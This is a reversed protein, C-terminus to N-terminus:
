INGIDIKIEDNGVLKRLSNVKKLIVKTLNNITKLYYLITEEDTVHILKHINSHVLVLNKYSDDGGLSVPKKHHCEFEGIKLYEKTVACQGRQGYYLSIRNDNYEVSRTTIPNSIMYRIIRYDLGMANSHIIKRGTHTYDCIERRLNMPSSHKMAYIPFLELDGIFYTKGSYNGYIRKYTESHNGKNKYKGKLRNELSKRVVYDIYSFDRTCNTAIKYYNHMGLVTSNYKQVNLLDARSQLFKIREKLNKICKKKAKETMSSSLVLKQKKQVLGFEFGLFESKRKRLNTISSKEPSIDLDLREKLWLKVAHFIKEADKHNRCLIKFDDAYRVIRVEKLNTTKMARYKNGMNKRGNRKDIVAYDKKLKMGDWQSDIWWDLENLVINSLLPSLIGGQPTGKTMVGEGEVECKLMKSIICILNKDRIGLTWMQKILKGHNVNDFFGKIDIDVVYHMHNLNVYKEFTAIAHEVSRNPRFGFSNKYFKAECIPELVQKIAQQIIRDEFAPIGLPRMKGGGKPIYVRRVMSPEFNNLKKKCETIYKDVNKLKVNDVTVGDVGRTRSGKNVKLNRFALKLNREDSILDMLNTFIKNNQSDAYLKDFDEQIGYYENNRLAQKKLPKEKHNDSTHPM